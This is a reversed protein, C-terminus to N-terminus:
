LKQEEAVPARTNWAAVADTPDPYAPTSPLTGCEVPPTEWPGGCAATWLIREDDGIPRLRGPAGCFPCPLLSAELPALDDTM